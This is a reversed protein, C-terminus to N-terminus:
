LSVGSAHVEASLVHGGEEGGFAFAFAFALACSFSKAAAPVGLVAVALDHLAADAVALFM